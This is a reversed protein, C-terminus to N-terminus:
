PVLVPVLLCPFTGMHAPSELREIASGAFGSEPHALFELVAPVFRRYYHFEPLVALGLRTRLRSLGDIALESTAARPGGLARERDDPRPGRERRLHPPPSGVQDGPAAKGGRTIATIEAFRARISISKNRGDTRETLRARLLRESHTERPRGPFSSTGARRQTTAAKLYASAVIRAMKDIGSGGRLGTGAIM